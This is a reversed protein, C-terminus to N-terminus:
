QIESLAMSRSQIRMPVASEIQLLVANRGTDTVYRSAALNVSVLGATALRVAQKARTKGTELDQDALAAYRAGEIAADTLVIKIYGAVVLNWTLVPMTLIPLIM